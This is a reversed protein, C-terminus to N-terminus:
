LQREEHSSQGLFNNWGVLLESTQFNERDIVLHNKLDEKYGNYQKILSEFHYPLAANIHSIITAVSGDEVFGIVGARM